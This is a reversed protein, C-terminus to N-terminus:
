STAFIKECLPQSCIEIRLVFLRSIRPSCFFHQKSESPYPTELIGISFELFCL